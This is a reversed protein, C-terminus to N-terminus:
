YETSGLYSRGYAAIWDKFKARYCVQGSKHIVKEANEPKAFDFYEDECNLTFYKEDDCQSFEGCDEIDYPLGMLEEQVKQADEISEAIVWETVDNAFVHLESM